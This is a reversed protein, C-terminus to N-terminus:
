FGTVQARRHVLKMRGQRLLEMPSGKDDPTFMWEIIEEDSYGADTLLTITGTVGRLVENGDIFEAPIVAKGDRRVAILDRDRLLQHVQTVILGLM